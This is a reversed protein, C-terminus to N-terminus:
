TARWALITAGVLLVVLVALGIEIARLLSSPLPPQPPGEPTYMPASEQSPEGPAPLPAQPPAQGVEVPTPPLLTPTAAPAEATPTPAPETPGSTPPQGTELGGADAGAAAPGLRTAPAPTVALAGEPAQEGAAASPLQDAEGSPPTPQAALMPQATPATASFVEPAPPVTAEVADTKQRVGQGTTAVQPAAAPAAARFTPTLAQSLILDAAFVLILLATALTTALRLTPYWRAARRVHAPRGYKAPDLLFNRPAPVPPLSRVLGLVRRTAELRARLEPERALRAEFEQRARGLLRGDIYASLLEDDHERRRREWWRM